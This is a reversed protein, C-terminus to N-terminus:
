PLDVRIRYYRESDAVPDLLSDLGGSGPIDVQGAVNSWGPAVVRESFELSYIRSTSSQYFIEVPSNASIRAARFVSDADGPNTDATYEDLGTAGDHDLDASADAANTTNMGNELEWDDPIQDNDDDADHFDPAGDGDSDAVEAVAQAHDDLAVYDLVEGEVVMTNTQAGVVNTAIVVDVVVSASALNSITGLTCLLPNTGSCSGQSANVTVVAPDYHDPGIAVALLRPTHKTDLTMMAARYQVYRNSPQNTLGLVPPSITTNGLESFVTNTTGDPGVFVEGACAADDCTRVQLGLLLVGRKYLDEVDHQSLASQFVAVEDLCGSWHGTGASAAALTVPANAFVNSDVGTGDADGDMFLEVAFAADRRFAIHHWAGDTLTATSSALDQGGKRYALRNSSIVLEFRNSDAPAYQAFITGNSTTKIWAAMTYALNSQTTSLVVNSVTVMDDVGDFALATRFRGAVSHDAAGEGTQLVASAGVASRERLVSGNTAPSENLHLLMTSTSRGKGGPQPHRQSSHGPDDYPYGTEVFSDDPLEKGYPHFPLWSLRTWEVDAAADMVRSTFTGGGAAMGSSSLEIWDNSGDWQVNGGQGGGFGTVAGDDDLQDVVRLPLNAPPTMSLFVNPADANGLNTVVVSYILRNTSLVVDVSQSVSVALNAIPAGQLNPLVVFLGEGISSLIVVGSEFYPYVSWTGDYGRNNNAPYTDFHAVHVLNTNEVDVLDLIRLGARYNAQYVYNSLVYQNHDQAATSHQYYGMYIPSDLDEINVIYTRTNNGGNEDIEDDFLVFRHDDSVWGQHTYASGPYGMRAVQTAGGPTFVDVITVTDENFNFCIEKGVYNTDPGTYTVCQADHTYGDASFCGAFVPNTPVQIDIIHLGGSCGTGGSSIGVAYATGSEENIVINHASGFNPYHATEAFTLPPNTVDRLQTLDFVQMGHSGAFDSVVFAHNRYTKIDRWISNAGHPPLNGLYVPNTPNSIDVFSTGSTRGVLAVEHGTVPDTWGWCDNLSGGGITDKHMFALLDVDQCPYGAAFGGSCPVYEAVSLAATCLGILTVLCRRM